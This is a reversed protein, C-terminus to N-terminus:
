KKKLDHAVRNAVRDMAQVLSDSVNASPRELISTNTTADFKGARFLAFDIELQDRYVPGSQGGMPDSADTSPVRGGITIPPMRPDTVDTKPNRVQTLLVYDCEQRKMEEGNAVTPRLERDNTTLSDMAVASLKNEELSKTLRAAMREEFLSTATRNSIGAVCVKLRTESKPQEKSWSSLSSVLLISSVWLFLRAPQRM